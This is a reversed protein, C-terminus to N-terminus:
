TFNLYVPTLFFFYIFFFTFCFEQGFVHFFIIHIIFECKYKIPALSLFYTPFLFTKKLVIHDSGLDADLYEEALTTPLMLITEAHPTVGALLDGPDTM